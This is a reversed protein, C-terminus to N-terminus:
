PLIEVKSLLNSGYHSASRYMEEVWVPNLTFKGAFNPSLQVKFSHQGKPLKTCFIAVKDKFYERQSEHSNHAENKDLFDCGAPIPIEVMVFSADEKTTVDVLLTAPEHLKLKQQSKPGLFKSEVEFAKSSISDAGSEASFQVFSVYASTMDAGLKLHFTDAQQLKLSFPTADKINLVKYPKTPPSKSNKKAAAPKANLIDPLIVELIKAVEMTNNWIGGYRHNGDHFGRNSLLYQRIQALAEKEGADRFVRYALLLNQVDQHETYHHSEGKAFLFETKDENFFYKYLTDLSYSRQNLQRLREVLLKKYAMHAHDILRSELLKPDFRQGALSFTELSKLKDQEDMEPLHKKLFSLGKDIAEVPYGAKSARILAQLVYNSMWIIGPEETYWSWGGGPLQRQELISIGKYIDAELSFTQKLQSRLSKELLLAMLKSSTQENCGFQYKRLYQIDDLMLNLVGNPIISLKAEKVGPDLLVPLLTDRTIEFLQGFPRNRGKPVMPILHSEGDLYNGTQIGFEIALSDGQAPAKISQQLYSVKDVTWNSDAITQGNQKFYSHILEPQDTKNNIKSHIYVEDGKVLFRPLLLQAEIPKFANIRSTGLGMNGAEDMGIGFCQWDTLNEPFTANFVAKGSSDTTLNPQWFAYDSFHTRIKNPANHFREEIQIHEKKEKSREVNRKSVQDKASVSYSAYNTSRKVISFGSVVVEQLLQNSERLLIIATAASDSKCTKINAGVYGLYTIELNASDFPLKLSFNGDIDASTGITTGRVLISAGILPFHNHEILQGRIIKDAGYEICPYSYDLNRSFQVDSDAYLPNYRKFGTAALYDTPSKFILPLEYQELLSPEPMPNNFAPWQQAWIISDQFLSEYQGKEFEFKRQKYFAQLINVQSGTAFPGIIGSGYNKGIVRKWVFSNGHDDWAYFDESTSGISVMASSIDKKEQVSLAEKEFFYVNGNHLVRRPADANLVLNSRQGANLQVGDIQYLGSQTHISLCHAGAQSAFCYPSSAAAIGVYKLTDDCYISLAPEYSGNKVVLPAFFAHKQIFATTDNLTLDERLLQGQPFRFAYFHDSQLQELKLYFANNLPFSWDKDLKTTEYEFQQTGNELFDPALELASHPLGKEFQANVAGAMLNVGQLAKGKKNRVSLQLSLTQGPYVQEPVTWDILLRHKDFPIIRSESMVQDGWWYQYQIKLESQNFSNSTWNFVSDQILGGQIRKNGSFLQYWIPINIPNKLTIFKGDANNASEWSLIPKIGNDFSTDLWVRDLPQTFGYAYGEANSHIPIQVTDKGVYILHHESERIEWIKFPKGLAHAEIKAGRQELVIPIPDYVFPIEKVVMNTGPSSFTIKAVLQRYEAPLGASSLDFLIDGNTDMQKIVSFNIPNTPYANKHRDELVIKAIAEPVAQDNAGRAHLHLLVAEGKHYSKKDLYANYHVPNLYYDELRFTYALSDSMNKDLASALLTYDQDLPLTDALPLAFSWAGNEVQVITDWCIKNSKIRARLQGSYPKGNPRAAYIKAKLTDHHRFLPKCLAIYGRIASKPPYVQANAAPLKPKNESAKFNYHFTNGGWAVSITARQAMFNPKSYFQFNPQYRLENGQVSVKADDIPKGRQDIVQVCLQGDFFMTKVSFNTKFRLHATLNKGQNELMVYYGNSLEDLEQDYLSHRLMGTDLSKGQLLVAAHQPAISFDWIYAQQAILQTFAFVLLLLLTTTRKMIHLTKCAPHVAASFDM